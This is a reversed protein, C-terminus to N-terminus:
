EIMFNSDGIQISDDDDHIFFLARSVDGSSDTLEITNGSIRYTGSSDGGAAGTTPAGGAVSGIMLDSSEYTGDPKFTITERWSTSGASIGALGSFGQHEYEQDLTLNDEVPQVPALEVEDIVLLGGAVEISRTEGDELILEGNEITYSQCIGEGCDITEPGGSPPADLVVQQDPLFTIINWCMGGCESGDFDPSFGYYMGQLRELNVSGPEAPQYHGGNDTGGGPSVNSTCGALLVMAVLLCVFIYHSKCASRKTQM